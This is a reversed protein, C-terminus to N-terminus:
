AAKILIRDRHSLYILPGESWECGLQERLCEGLPQLQCAVNTRSRDVLSVISIATPSSERCIKMQLVVVLMVMM